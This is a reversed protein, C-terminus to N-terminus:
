ALRKQNESPKPLYPIREFIDKLQVMGEFVKKRESYKNHNKVEKELEIVNRIREEDYIIAILFSPNIIGQRVRAFNNTKVAEYVKGIEDPDIKVEVGNSMKAIYAKILDDKFYVKDKDM